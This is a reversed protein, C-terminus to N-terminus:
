TQNMYSAHIEQWTRDQEPIISKLFINKIENKIKNM